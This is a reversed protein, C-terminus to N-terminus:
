KKGKPTLTKDLWAGVKTFFTSVFIGAAVPLLLLLGYVDSDRPQGFSSLRAALMTLDAPLIAVFYALVGAATAVAFRAILKAAEFQAAITKPDQGVAAPAIILLLLFLCAGAFGTIGYITAWLFSVPQNILWYFMPNTRGNAIFSLLYDARMMQETDGKKNKFEVMQKADPQNFVAERVQRAEGVFLGLFLALLLLGVLALVRVTM